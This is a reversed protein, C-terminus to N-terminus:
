NVLKTLPKMKTVVPTEPKPQMHSTVIVGNTEFHTVRHDSGHGMMVAKRLM